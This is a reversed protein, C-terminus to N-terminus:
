FLKKITHCNSVSCFQFRCSICVIYMLSRLLLHLFLLLKARNSTIHSNIVTPQQDSCVNLNTVHESSLICHCVCVCM